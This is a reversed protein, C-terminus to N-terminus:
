AACDQDSNVVLMERHTSTAVAHLVEDKPANERV